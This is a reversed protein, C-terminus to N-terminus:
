PKVEPRRQLLDLGQICLGLQAIMFWVLLFSLIWTLTTIWGSVALQAAEVRLKLQTTTDKYQDLVTQTGELATSIVKTTESIKKLEVEVIGLNTKGIELSSSLAALAPKIADLSNSVQALATHLPVEPKYVSVPLFPISTIAALANDILLASSQASTLSTQTANIAGPLDKSTLGTLSDIMPNTDHVTQALGLTTTQLSAVDLTTTEVLLGISTLGDQTAVLTQDYLALTDTMSRTVLPRYYWVGFLGVVSFIFGVAAAALFLYGVLRSLKV